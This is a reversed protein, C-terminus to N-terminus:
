SIATKKKSYLCLKRKISENRKKANEKRKEQAKWHAKDEQIECWKKYTNM